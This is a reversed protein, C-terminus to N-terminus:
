WEGGFLPCSPGRQFRPRKSPRMAAHDAAEHDLSRPNQEGAATDGPLLFKEDGTQPWTITRIPRFHRVVHELVARVLFEPLKELNVERIEAIGLRKSFMDQILWQSLLKHMPATEPLHNNLYELDELRINMELWAKGRKLQLMDSMIANQLDRCAYKRAFAYLKLKQPIELYQCNFAPKTPGM